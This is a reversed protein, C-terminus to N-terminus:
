FKVASVKYFYPVFYSYNRAQVVISVLYQTM